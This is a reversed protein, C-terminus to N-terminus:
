WMFNSHRQDSLQKLSAKHNKVWMKINKIFKLPIILTLVIASLSRSVEKRVEKLMQGKLVVPPHFGFSGFLMWLLM